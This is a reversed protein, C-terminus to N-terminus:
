YFLDWTYTGCRSKMKVTFSMTTVSRGESICNMTNWISDCLWQKHQKYKQFFSHQCLPHKVPFTKTSETSQYKVHRRLALGSHRKIWDTVSSNRQSSLNKRLPAFKAFISKLCGIETNATNCYKLVRIVAGGIVPDLVSSRRGHLNGTRHPCTILVMASANIVLKKNSNSNM